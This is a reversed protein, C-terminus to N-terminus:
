TKIKIPEKKQVIAVSDFGYSVPIYLDNHTIYYKETNRNFGVIGRKVFEFAIDYLSSHSLMHRKQNEFVFLNDLDNNKKDGDIHHVCETETLRRGISEEVLKTHLFLRENNLQYYLYGNSDSVLGRRRNVSSIERSCLACYDKDSKRKHRSKYINRYQVVEEIECRDCKRTVLQKSTGSLTGYEIDILM